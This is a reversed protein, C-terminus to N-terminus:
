LEEKVKLKGSEVKFKVKADCVTKGSDAFVGVEFKVEEGLIYSSKASRAWFVGWLINQSGEYVSDDKLVTTRVEYTGPKLEDSPSLIIKFNGDDAREVKYPVHVQKGEFYVKVDVQENDAFVDKPGLVDFSEKIKENDINLTLVANEDLAFNDEDATLKIGSVGSAEGSSDVSLRKSEISSLKDAGYSFIPVMNGVM